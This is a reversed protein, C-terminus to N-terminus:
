IIERFLTTCGIVAATENGNIYYYSYNRAYEEIVRWDEQNNNKLTEYPINM